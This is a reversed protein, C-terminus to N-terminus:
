TFADVVVIRCCAAALLLLLLQLVLLLLDKCTTAVTALVHIKNWNFMKRTM